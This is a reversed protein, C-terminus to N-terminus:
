GKLIQVWDIAEPAAILQIIAFPASLSQKDISQVVGIPLNPPVLTSSPSTSVVDGPQVNSDKDLFTLKTRNTGMGILIGHRQIREIWVGVRSGPATLLKVRSSTSTVSDVLGILGGPALVSDGVRIGHKIGKNLELQQWWGSPRRSIVVAAIKKESSINKLSLIKRLRLNDKELLDLKISQELKQSDQLWEKQTIGPWFPRSLFNYADMFGAGKSFRVFGLILLLFFSKRFSSTYIKEFKIRKRFQVM